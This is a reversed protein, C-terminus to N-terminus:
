LQILFVLMKIYLLLYLSNKREQKRLSTFRNVESQRSHVKSLSYSLDFCEEEYYYFKILLAITWKQTDRKRVVENWCNSQWILREWLCVFIWLEIKVIMFSRTNTIPNESETHMFFIVCTTNFYSRKCWRCYFREQYNRIRRIAKRQGSVIQHYLIM